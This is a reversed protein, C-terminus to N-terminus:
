QTAPLDSNKSKHQPWPICNMPGQAAGLRERSERAGRGCGGQGCSSTEKVDRVNKSASGSAHSHVAADDHTGVFAVFHDDGQLLSM